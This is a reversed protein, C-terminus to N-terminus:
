AFQDDFKELILLVLLQIRVKLAPLGSYIECDLTRRCDTEVRRFLIFPGVGAPRTGIKFLLVKALVTKLFLLM